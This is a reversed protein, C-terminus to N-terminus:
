RDNDHYGVTCYRTYLPLKLEGEYLVRNINNKLALDRYDEITNIHEKIENYNNSTLAYMPGKQAPIDVM